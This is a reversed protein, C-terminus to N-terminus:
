PDAEQAAAFLTDARRLSENTAEDLALYGLDVLRDADASLRPGQTLRAQMDALTRVTVTLVNTRRDVTGSEAVVSARERSDVGAPVPVTRRGVVVLDDETRYTPLDVPLALTAPRH